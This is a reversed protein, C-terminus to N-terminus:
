FTNGNGGGSSRGSGHISGLDEANYVSAKGDSGFTDYNVNINYLMIMNYIMYLIGYHVIYKCVIKYQYHTIHKTALDHRVRQSRM